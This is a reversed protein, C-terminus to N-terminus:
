KSKAAWWQRFAAADAANGRKEAADAADDFKAAAAILENREQTTLYWSLPVSGSLQFLVNTFFGAEFDSNFRTSLWDLKEDNRYLAVSDRASFLGELPSSLEEAGRSLASNRKEVGIGVPRIGRDTQGDRIEVVAVGSVNDKFVERDSPSNLMEELWNAAITVGYNDYYGADVVRRRPNSPLVTAPSFYPFSASMRAPASVRLKSWSAPFLKFFEFSSQSYFRDGTVYNGNSTTLKELDLNSVLLRRGDEVLMPSFVLSPRWGAEEGPALDAFTKQWASGMNLWWTKELVEGRDRREIFPLFNRLLDRFLMGKFVSSLMDDALSYLLRKADSAADNSAPNNSAADDIPTSAFGAARRAERDLLSSHRAKGSGDPELLSAVYYGAGVM